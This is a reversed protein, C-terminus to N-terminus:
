LGMQIDNQQIESVSLRDKHITPDATRHSISMSKLQLCTRCTQQAPFKYHIHEKYMLVALKYTIWQQVPLWHLQHLLSLIQNQIWCHLKQITGTLAGRLRTNCYRQECIFDYIPSIRVFAFVSYMCQCHCLNEIYKEINCPTLILIVCLIAGMLRWHDMLTVPTAHWPTRRVKYMCVTDTHVFYGPSISSSPYNTSNNTNQSSSTPLHETRITLTQQM